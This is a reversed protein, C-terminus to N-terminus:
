RAALRPSLNRPSKKLGEIVVADLNAEFEQPYRCKLGGSRPVDEVSPNGWMNGAV